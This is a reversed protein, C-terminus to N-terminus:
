ADHLEAASQTVDCLGLHCITTTTTTALPMMMLAQLMGMVM